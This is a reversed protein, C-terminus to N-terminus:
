VIKKNSCYYNQTANGFLSIMRTLQSHWPYHLQCVYAVLDYSPSIVDAISSTRLTLERRKLIESVTM